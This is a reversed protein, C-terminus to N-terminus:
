RSFRPPSSTKTQVIAFSAPTTTGANINSSRNQEPRVKPVRRAEMAASRASRPM